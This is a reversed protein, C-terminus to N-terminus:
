SLAAYVAQVAEDTATMTAGWETRLYAVVLDHDPDVVLLSGTAGSHGFSSPGAPSGRGLGPRGWGLAYTAPRGDDLERVDRTHHRTMLEVFPRGLVRSGDITGGLLMARGFRAIDTPTSWLGGGPMTLAIFVPLVESWPEGPPGFDGEIPVLAPGPEYPDFTTAAMGLPQFIRERLFAPFSTGSLREIAASLTYFSESAYAYASGPRFRLTSQGLWRLLAERSAETGAYYEDPPTPLGSTHTLVHWATVREPPQDTTAPAVPHFGPLYTEIPEVLVLSGAEVLQMVATAVIPKTISAIASRPAVAMEGLGNFSAARVLGDSRAVALGAYSARGDRVQRAVLDFARDLRDGDLPPPPTVPM